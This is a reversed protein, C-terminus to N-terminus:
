FVTLCFIHSCKWKIRAVKYLKKLFRQSSKPAGEPRRGPAAAGRAIRSLLICRWILMQGPCVKVMHAGFEPSYASYAGIGWKLFIILTSHGRVGRAFAHSQWERCAFMGVIWFFLKFEGGGGAFHFGLYAVSTAVTEFNNPSRAAVICLRRLIELPRPAFINFWKPKEM